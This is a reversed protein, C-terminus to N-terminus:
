SSEVSAMDIPATDVVTSGPWDKGRDTPGLELSGVVPRKIEFMAPYGALLLLGDFVQLAQSGRPVATM